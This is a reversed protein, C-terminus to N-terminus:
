QEWGTKSILVPYHTLGLKRAVSEASAPILRLGQALAVIERVDDLDQAEVLMGVAGLQALRVQNARLWAKSRADAGILFLPSQLYRLPKSSATVEGPTMSPTTIPLKFPLVDSPKQKLKQKQAELAKNKKITM